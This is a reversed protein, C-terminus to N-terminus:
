DMYFYQLSICNNGCLSARLVTSRAEDKYTITGKVAGAELMRIDGTIPAPM